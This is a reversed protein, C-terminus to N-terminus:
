RGKKGEEGERVSESLQRVKRIIASTSADHVGKQSDDSLEGLVIGALQKGLEVGWQDFSNIGWIAGQCFVKHEYLSILSGLSAPTLERCLLMNSPKSGAFVKHPALAAIDGASMGEAQLEERVETESKGCMLAEAQAICNALLKQQHDDFGRDGLVAAIFDCPILAQGQHILQYFAHQGNTGPEGWVIPGTAYDVPSGDRTVSKGNSEMDLQQLFAPLFKLRQNYPLVAVSEASWFNRYWIGMVALIVPMNQALPANLFHQDMAHAGGLLAEFHEWGIAVAISLGVTSWLSYRGGVWNWFGFINDPGIGFATVAETNTSVAVFHRGIAADDDLSQQLWDRASHANTMTEQTTFTKSVVIFLTTEPDLGALTDDLHSADVNSVYHVRLNKQRYAELAATVMAPGLDSGGIGINVVDSIRKGTYGKWDGSRVRDSFRKLKDLERNVAPMIDEGEPEVVVPTNSRNRLAVHLVSRRETINIRDGSVMADRLAELGTDRALQLLMQLTANDILNKSYDLFWDGAQLSFRAARDTDAEFLSPLSTGSLLKQQQQLQQWIALQRITM